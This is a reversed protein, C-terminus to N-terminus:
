WLVVVSAIDFVMPGFALPLVALPAFLIAALPPYTFPLKIDAVSYDQTYLNEDRLFAKAGERYVDIDIHYRWFESSGIADFNVTRLSVAYLAFLLASAM